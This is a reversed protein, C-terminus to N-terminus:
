IINISFLLALQFQISKMRVLITGGVQYRFPRLVKKQVLFNPMLALPPVETIGAM